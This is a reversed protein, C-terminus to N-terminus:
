KLSEAYKAWSQDDIKKESKILILLGNKILIASQPGKASTGIYVKIGTAKIEDTAGFSKALADLQADTGEIFSDPLPQQSVSIKVGDITDGYAFVPTTNPPSVRQWGGLQQISKDKPVVTQYELKDLPAAAPQAPKERSLFYYTVGSISVVVIAAVSLIVLKNRALARIKANSPLRLWSPKGFNISINVTKPTGQDRSPDKPTVSSSDQPTVTEAGKRQRNTNTRKFEV